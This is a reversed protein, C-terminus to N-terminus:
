GGGVTEGEFCVLWSSPPARGVDDNGLWMKQCLLKSKEICAKVEVRLGPGFSSLLWQLHRHVRSLSRYCHRQFPTVDTVGGDSIRPPKSKRGRFVTIHFVVGEVPADGDGLNEGFFFRACCGVLVEPCIHRVM